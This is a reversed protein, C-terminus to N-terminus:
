LFARERGRCDQSEHVTTFSFGFLFFFELFVKISLMKLLTIFSSQIAPLRIEGIDSWWACNKIIYGIVCSCLIRLIIDVFSITLM